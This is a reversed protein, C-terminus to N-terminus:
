QTEHCSDCGMPASHTKHCEMCAAMSTDKVKQMQEMEAVNGHCVDCTVKANVVHQKHSFYVFNPERYVRRWPVQQNKDDYEKLKQISASDIKVTTHCGMCTSTPPLSAFDETEVTGHCMLCTLGQDLHTKHSYPIPQEPPPIPKYEGTSISPIPPAEQDQWARATGIGFCVAVM